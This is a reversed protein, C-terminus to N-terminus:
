LPLGLKFRPSGMYTVSLCCQVPKEGVSRDEGTVFKFLPM